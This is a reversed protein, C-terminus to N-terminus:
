NPIKMTIISQKLEKYIDRINTRKLKDPCYRENNKLLAVFCSLIKRDKSELRVIDISSDYLEIKLINFILSTCLKKKKHCPVYISLFKYNETPEVEKFAATFYGQLVIQESSDGIKWAPDASFFYWFAYFKTCYPSSILSLHIFNLRWIIHVCQTILQDFIVRIECWQRM